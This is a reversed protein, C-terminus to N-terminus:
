VFGKATCARFPPYLTGGKRNFTHVVTHMPQFPVSSNRRLHQPKPRNLRIKTM